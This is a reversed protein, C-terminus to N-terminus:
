RPRQLIGELPIAPAASERRLDAIASLADPTSMSAGDGERALQFGREFAARAEAPRKMDRYLAGLRACDTILLYRVRFNRPDAALVRERAGMAVIQFQWSEHLDGKRRMMGALYANDLALDLKVVANGPDRTLRQEDINLSVRLHEAAKPFDHLQAIYLYALRKESQALFRLADTNEPHRAALARFYEICKVRAAV